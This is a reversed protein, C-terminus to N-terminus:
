RASVTLRAIFARQASAQAINRPVQRGVVGVKALEKWAAALQGLPLPLAHLLQSGQAVEIVQRAQGKGVKHRIAVSERGVLRGGQTESVVHGLPIRLVRLTPEDQKALIAAALGVQRCGNGVPGDLAPQRHEKDDDRVQQVVQASGKRGIARRRVVFPKVLHAVGGQENKIIQAGLAAGGPGLFLEELDEVMAIVGTQRSYNGGIVPQLLDIHADARAHHVGIHGCDQRNRSRVKPPARDISALRVQRAQRQQLIHGKVGKAQALIFELWVVPVVQAASHLEAAAIGLFGAVPQHQLPVIAAALGMQRCGNGM